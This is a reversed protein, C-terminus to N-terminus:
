LKQMNSVFRSSDIVLPKSEWPKPFTSKCEVYGLSSPHTKCAVLCAEENEMKGIMITPEVMSLPKRGCYCYCGGAVVTLTENNIEILKKM